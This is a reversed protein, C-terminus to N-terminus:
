HWSPSTSACRQWGSSTRAAAPDEDQRPSLRQGRGGGGQGAPGPRKRSASPYGRCSGKPRSVWCRTCRCAAASPWCTSCPTRWHRRPWRTAACAGAVAGAPRGAVAGAETRSSSNTSSIAPRPPRKRQCLLSRPRGRMRGLRGPGQGGHAVLLAEKCNWTAVITGFPAVFPLRVTLLEIKEIGGLPEELWPFVPELITM